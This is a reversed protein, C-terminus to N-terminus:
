LCLTTLARFTLYVIQLALFLVGVPLRMWDPPSKFFIRLSFAFLAMGIAPYFIPSLLDNHTAATFFMRARNLLQAAQHVAAEWHGPSYGAFVILAAATLLAVSLVDGDLGRRRRSSTTSSPQNM